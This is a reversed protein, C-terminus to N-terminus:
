RGGRCRQRRILDLDRASCDPLERAQDRTGHAASANWWDPLEKRSEAELADLEAMTTGLKCWRQKRCRPLKKYGGVLRNNMSQPSTNLRAALALVEDRRVFRRYRKLNGVLREELVSGIKGTDIWAAVTGIPRNVLAAADRITLYEPEDTSM